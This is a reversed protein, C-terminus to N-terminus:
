CTQEKYYVDDYMRNTIINYCDDCIIAASSEDIGPFQLEAEAMADESSRDSFFEEHCMECIYSYTIHDM